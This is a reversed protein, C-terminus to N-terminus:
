HPRARGPSRRSRRRGRSSSREDAKASSVPSAIPAMSIGLEEDIRDIALENGGKRQRQKRSQVKGDSRLLQMFFTPLPTMYLWLIVTFIFSWSEDRDAAGRERSYARLCDSSAVTCYVIWASFTALWGSFSAIFGVLGGTRSIGGRVGSGCEFVVGLTVYLACIFGLIAIVMLFLVWNSADKCDGQLDGSRNYKPCNYNFLGHYCGSNEEYLWGRTCMCITLSIIGIVNYVSVACAKTKLDKSFVNITMAPARRTKQRKKKKKKQPRKKHEHEHVVELPIDPEPEYQYEPDRKSVM